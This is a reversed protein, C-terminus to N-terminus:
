DAADSHSRFRGDLSFGDEGVSGLKVKRANFFRYKLGLDVNASIAKRLGIIGQWALGSDSDSISDGDFDLSYKVSAVGVGAGVYGSWGDDDGFDLLGNVMASWVRAKGDIDYTGTLTGLPGGQVQVEDLGARKWGLEAEVRFPGFDYGGVLDVDIGLKHDVDFANDIETVVVGDDGTFDFETDEAIMAGGEIGAYWSKDRAVAPTALATSALAALIALKRM